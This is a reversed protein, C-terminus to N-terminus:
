AGEMGDMACSSQQVELSVHSDWVAWADVAGSRFALSAGPPPLLTIGVEQPAVGAQKPAARILYQGWGGRNGAVKRGCLDAVGCIPSGQKVLIAQAAASPHVALLREIRAGSCGM